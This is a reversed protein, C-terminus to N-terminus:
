YTSLTKFVEKAVNDTNNVVIKDNTIKKMYNYKALGKKEM